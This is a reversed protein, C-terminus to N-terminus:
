WRGRAAVACRGPRLIEVRPTIDDLRAVIPEFCRHERSVDRELVRLDVLVSQAERRRMGVTIDGARASRNAAIVRNGVFVAAPEDPDTEWAVVPWDPIRLAVTRVTTTQRQTLM